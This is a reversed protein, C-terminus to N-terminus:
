LENIDELMKLTTKLALIQEPSAIKELNKKIIQTKFRSPDQQELWKDRLLSRVEESVDLFHNTIALKKLEDLLSVPMRVSVIHDPLSSLM